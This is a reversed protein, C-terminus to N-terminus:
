VKELERGVQQYNHDKKLCMALMYGLRWDCNAPEQSLLFRLYAICDSKYDPYKM